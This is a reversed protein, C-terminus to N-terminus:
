LFGSSDEDYKDDALPQTFGPARNGLLEIWTPAQGLCVAEDTQGFAASQNTRPPKSLPQSAYEVPALPENPKIFQSHTCSRPELNLASMM